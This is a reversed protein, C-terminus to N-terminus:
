IIRAAVLRGDCLHHQREDQDLVPLVDWWRGATCKIGRTAAGYISIGSWLCSGDLLITRETCRSDRRGM